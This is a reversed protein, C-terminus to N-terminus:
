GQPFYPSAIDSRVTEPNLIGADAMRIVSAAIQAICGALAAAKLGRAELENMAEVPDPSLPRSFDSSITGLFVAAQGDEDVSPPETELLFSSVLAKAMAEIDGVIEELNDGDAM